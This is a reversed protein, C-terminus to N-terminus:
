RGGASAPEVGEHENAGAAFEIGFGVMAEATPAAGTCGFLPVVDLHSHPTLRWSIFPGPSFEAAVKHRDGQLTTDESHMEVGVSLKEATLSYSLDDVIEANRKNLAPKM